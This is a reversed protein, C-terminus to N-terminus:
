SHMNETTELLLDTEDTQTWNSAHSIMENMEFFHPSVTVDSLDRRERLTHAAFARVEKMSAEKWAIRGGRRSIVQKLFKPQQRGQQRHDGEKRSSVTMFHDILADVCGQKQVGKQAIMYDGKYLLAVDRWLQNGANEYSRKGKGLLVDRVNPIVKPM